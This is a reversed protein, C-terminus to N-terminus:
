RKGSLSRVFDNIFEEVTVPETLRALTKEQIGVFNSEPVSVTPISEEVPISPIASVLEIVKEVAAYRLAECNEPNDMSLMSLRYIEKNDPSLILCPQNKEDLLRCIIMKLAHRRVDCNASTYSMLKLLGLDEM